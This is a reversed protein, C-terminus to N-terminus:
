CAILRWGLKPYWPPETPQEVVLKACRSGTPGVAPPVIMRDATSLPAALTSRSYPLAGAPAAPHRVIALGGDAADHPEDEEFGISLIGDRLGRPPVAQEIAVDDVWYEAATGGVILALSLVHLSRATDLVVTVTHEKWVPGFYLPQASGVWEGGVSEDTVDITVRVNEGTGAGSGDDSGDDYVTIPQGPACLEISRVCNQLFRGRNYSFVCFRLSV